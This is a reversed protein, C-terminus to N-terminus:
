GQKSIAEQPKKSRISRRSDQDDCHLKSRLVEIACQLEFAISNFISNQKESEKELLMSQIRLELHTCDEFLWDYNKNIDSKAIHAITDKYRLFLKALDTPAWSTYTPIQEIQLSLEECVKNM